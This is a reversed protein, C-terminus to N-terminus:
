INTRLSQIVLNCFVILKVIYKIVNFKRYTGKIYAKIFLIFCNSLKYKKLENYLM